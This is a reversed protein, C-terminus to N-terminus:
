LIELFKTTEKNWMYNRKKKYFFIKIYARVKIMQFHTKKYVDLSSIRLFSISGTPLLCILSVRFNQYPIQFSYKTWFEITKWNGLINKFINSVTSTSSVYGWNTLFIPGFVLKGCWFYFLGFYEWPIRLSKWM